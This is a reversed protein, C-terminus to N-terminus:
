WIPAKSINVAFKQPYFYTTQNSKCHYYDYVARFRERSPFLSWPMENLKFPKKDKYMTEPNVFNEESRAEDAVGEETTLYSSM